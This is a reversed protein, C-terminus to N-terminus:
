CCKSMMKGKEDKAAKGDRDRSSSHLLHQLLLCIIILLLLCVRTYFSLCVDLSVFVVYKTSKMKFFDQLCPTSRFWHRLPKMAKGTTLHTLNDALKNGPGIFDESTQEVECRIMILFFFVAMVPVLARKCHRTYFSSFAKFSTSLDFYCFLLHKRM